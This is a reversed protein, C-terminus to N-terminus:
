GLRQEFELGLGVLNGLQQVRAIRCIYRVIRMKHRGIMMETDAPLTIEVYVRGSLPVGRRADAVVSAGADSINATRGRALIRWKEDCLAVPYAAAVRISRRRDTVKVNDTM